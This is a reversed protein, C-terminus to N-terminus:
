NRNEIAPPEASRAFASRIKGGRTKRRMKERKPKKETEAKEARSAKSKASLVYAFMYGTALSAFMYPALASGSLIVYATFAGGVILVVLVDLVITVPLLDTRKALLTTLMYLGRAALGLALCFVFAYIESM